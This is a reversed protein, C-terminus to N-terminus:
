AACGAPRFRALVHGLQVVGALADDRRFHLEDGQPFVLAALRQTRRLHLANQAMLMCALAKAGAQGLLDRRLEHAILHGTAPRDNGVVDVVRFALRHDNTTVEQHFDVAVQAVRRDGRGDLFFHVLHSPADAPARVGDHIEGGALVDMFGALPDDAVRRHRNTRHGDILRQLLDVANGFVEGPLDEAIRQDLLRFLPHIIEGNVGPHQQAVHREGGVADGANDATAAGDHCLPAQIVM